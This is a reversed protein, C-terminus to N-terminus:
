TRREREEVVVNLHDIDDLDRVRDALRAELSRMDMTARYWSGADGPWSRPVRRTALCVHAHGRLKSFSM